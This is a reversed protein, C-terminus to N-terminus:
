IGRSLGDTKETIITTGPVHIAKLHCELEIELKKIKEVMDHLGPSSSSGKSVAFYVTSSNTFYFFTVGKLDHRKQQRARKLTALLTRMEKWNGSFHYLRPSWTGLWMEFPITEKYQVTGGTGTGSGDGFSPVLCGSRSGQASRDDNRQLLWQWMALDRLGETDIPTFLYYPLDEGQWDRPHLTRKLGQLYTHGIRSPTADVLSELVGIVVALALRSLKSRKRMAYETMASAKDRKYGPIRIKPTTTTDFILGTYKV